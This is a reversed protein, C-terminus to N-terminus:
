RAAPSTSTAPPTPEDPSSATAPCLYATGHITTRPPDESIEFTEWRVYNAGMQAAKQGINTKAKSEASPGKPAEGM